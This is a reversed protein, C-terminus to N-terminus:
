SQLNTYDVNSPPPCVGYCQCTARNLNTAIFAEIEDPSAAPPSGFRRIHAAGRQRIADVRRNHCDLLSEVERLVEWLPEESPSCVKPPNGTM